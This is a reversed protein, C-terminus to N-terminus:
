LGNMLFNRKEDGGIFFYAYAKIRLGAGIM